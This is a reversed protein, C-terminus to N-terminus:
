LEAIYPLNRYHEDLDFGYGVIFNDGVEFGYLDIDVQVKHKIKKNLLVCFRTSKTKFNKNFYDLIFQASYGTDVIDEVILVNKGNLNPLSLDIADIKGSSQTSGKYSSIRIFELKLPMNLHRILDSAFIVAGKLICVVYLEEDKYIENIQQALEKIKAQIQEETFLINKIKKM